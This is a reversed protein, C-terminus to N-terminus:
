PEECEDPIGDGDLDQSTGSAIDCEDPVLNDNCDVDWLCAPGSMDLQYNGTAGDKGAIRIWYSLGNQVSMLIRSQQGCYDDNCALQNATTGPCGSHVSLVTDYESACLSLTLWGNGGARYYYWMDPTGTSSGCTSAGDPTAGATSGTYSAGICAIEAAACDDHGPSDLPPLLDCEDPIGNPQCDGSTGAAIDCEDPVLNENCDPSTGAALDCEDPVANGNCDASVGSAIDCEDPVENSNCDPSTGAALDCEDPVQNGNCDLSTGAAIDESDLIGNENCDHTLLHVFPDIDFVNLQGDRNLDALGVHCVPHAAAYQGPDALAQVFPDIDFVNFAGDCNLDGYAFYQLRPDPMLVVPRLGDDVVIRLRDVGPAAGATLTVAFEGGGLESIDGITSLGASDPAHAVTIGTLPVSIPLGQWDRLVIRLTTTHSGSPPIVAPDFTALSQVADPRGVLSARWADFQQQLQFVPDPDAETQFAVNLRMFYDGDACGDEDCIPDDTDGIRAVVMGGIHGSKVFTEPPCGCAMPAGPECSCRGDGGAARAAEMGAMLRAPIDGPTNLLAAEIAPVVCDGALINGQIAYVLSGQSGVVGGRWFMAYIGTFTLNRGRTDAIGYQRYQHGEIDELLALIDQPPTGLQLQEFIIPRRLGDFDGSAQVAAAGRGVVVVPVLGLLDFQNLCTVTGVAVEQTQSDAIVISWTAWAPVAAACALAAALVIRSPTRSPRM